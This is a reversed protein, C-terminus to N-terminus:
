RTRLGAQLFNFFFCNSFLVVLSLALSALSYVLFRVFEESLKSHVSSITYRLVSLLDVQTGIFAHGVKSMAPEVKVIQQTVVFPRAIKVASFLPGRAEVRAEKM